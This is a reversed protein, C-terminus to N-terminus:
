FLNVEKRSYECFSMEQYQDDFREEIMKKEFDSLDIPFKIDGHNYNHIHTVYWTDIYPAFLTFIEAGGIVFVDDFFLHLLFLNEINSEVIIDQKYMLAKSVDHTVIYNRRGKLPINRISDYTKRGMIIANNGKGITIRQFFEFDINSYWPIKNEFGINGKSSICVIGKM